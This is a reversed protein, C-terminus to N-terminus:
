EFRVCRIYPKSIEPHKIDYNVAITDGSKISNFAGTRKESGKFEKGKVRYTYSFYPRYHAYYLDEIIGFTVSPNKTIENNEWIHYIPIALFALLAFCSIIKNDKNM